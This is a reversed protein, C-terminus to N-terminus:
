LTFQKNIRIMEECYESLLGAPAQTQLVLCSRIISNMKYHVDHREIAYRVWQASEVFSRMSPIYFVVSEAIRTKDFMLAFTARAIDGSFTPFLVLWLLLTSSSISGIMSRADPTHGEL